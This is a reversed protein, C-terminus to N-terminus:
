VPTEPDGRVKHDTAQVRGLLLPLKSNKFDWDSLPAFWEPAAEGQLQIV